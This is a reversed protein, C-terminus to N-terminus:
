RYDEPRVPAPDVYIGIAGEVERDVALLEHPLPQTLGDRSAPEEALRVFLADGVRETRDAPLHAEVLPVYASGFWSWWVPYPPPGAWVGRAALYATPEDKGDHWVTRGNWVLNREVEAVAYVAGTARAVDVFFRQFAARWAPDHLANRQLSLSHSSVPWGDVSAGIGADLCPPTGKLLLGSGAGSAAEV